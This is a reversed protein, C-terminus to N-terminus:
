TVKLSATRFDYTTDTPEVSGTTVRKAGVLRFDYCCNVKPKYTYTESGGGFSKSVHDPILYGATPPVIPAAIRYGRDGPLPYETMGHGFDAQMYYHRI